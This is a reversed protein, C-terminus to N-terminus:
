TPPTDVLGPPSSSAEQFDDSRDSDASDTDLETDDTGDSEDSDDNSSSTPAVSDQDATARKGFVWLGYWEGAASDDFADWRQMRAGRETETMAVWNTPGSRVATVQKGWADWESYTTGDKDLEQFTKAAKTTDSQDDDNLGVRSCGPQSQLVRLGRKHEGLVIAPTVPASGLVWAGRIDRHLTRTNVLAIGDNSTGQYDHLELNVPETFQRRALHGSDGPLGGIAAAVKLVAHTPLDTWNSAGEDFTRLWERSLMGWVPMLGDHWSWVLLGATELVHAPDSWNRVICAEDGNVLVSGEKDITLVLGGAASIGVMLNSRGCLAGRLQTYGQDDSRSLLRTAAGLDDTFEIGTFPTATSPGKCLRDHQKLVPVKLKRDFITSNEVEGVLQLTTYSDALHLEPVFVFTPAVALVALTRRHPLDCLSEADAATIQGIHTRLWAAFATKAHVGRLRTTPLVLETRVASPAVFWYGLSMIDRSPQENVLQLRCELRPVAQEEFEANESRGLVQLLLGPHMVVRLLRPPGDGRCVARLLLSQVADCVERPLLQLEARFVVCETASSLGVVKVTGDPLVIGEAVQALPLMVDAFLDCCM